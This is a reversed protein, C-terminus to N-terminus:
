LGTHGVYSWFLLQGILLFKDLGNRDLEKVLRWTIYAFLANIVIGLVYGWSWDYFESFAPLKGVNRKPFRDRKKNIFEAIRCSLHQGPRRFDAGHFQGGVNKRQSQQEQVGRHDHASPYGSQAEGIGQSRNAPRHLTDAVALGARREALLQQRRYAVFVFAARRFPSAIPRVLFLFSRGPTWSQAARLSAFFGPNVCYLGVVGCLKSLPTAHCGDNWTDHLEM